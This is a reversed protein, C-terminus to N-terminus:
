GSVFPMALRIIAAPNADSGNVISAMRARRCAAGITIEAGGTVASELETSGAAGV